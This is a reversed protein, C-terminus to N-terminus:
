SEDEEPTDDNEPPLDDLTEKDDPVSEEDKDLGLDVAERSENYKPDYFMILDENNEYEVDDSMGREQRLLIENMQIDEETFGLYRKLAFRKSIYDVGEIAQYTNILEANLASQRYLSFNQPEPMTLYFLDFDINVGASKLYAKFQRDFERALKSQLRQVFNVFKLEEMYAVGTKGDNSTYGGDAGSKFYSSPVRMVFLVMERFYSLESNEGLSQGGPLTEVRPGRGQGNTAFFYDETMSMPNYVADVSQSDGGGRMDAIRKQNIENKVEQLKYKSKAPHLNGTDIYFVRREPARVLRYIITADEMLQKQRFAREVPRLISNGFPAGENMGNSMSFHVMMRTPVVEINESFETSTNYTRNKVHYAVPEFDDDVEIAIVDQPHVYTWPKFDSKKRFFCDGYTIALQAIDYNRHYLNQLESWRRLCAKLTTIISEDIESNDYNTFNLDFPMKTNTNQTTMEEAITEVARCVDADNIMANYRQYRTIRDVDGSFLNSYWSYNSYSMGSGNYQTIADKALITDKKPEVIKYFDIIKAM